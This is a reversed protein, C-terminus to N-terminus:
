ELMKWFAPLNQAQQSYHTDFTNVHFDCDLLAYIAAVYHPYAVHLVLVLSAEYPRIM